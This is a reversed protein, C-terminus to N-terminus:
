TVLTIAEMMNGVFNYLLSKEFKMLTKNGNYDVGLKGKLVGFDIKKVKM